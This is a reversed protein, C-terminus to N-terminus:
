VWNWRIERRLAPRDSVGTLGPTALVTALFSDADARDGCWAEFADLAELEPEVAFSTRAHLQSLTGWRDHAFQRTVDVEFAPGEGWDYCGYQFLLMDSGEGRMRGGVAVDRYFGVAGAVFAAIPAADVGGVNAALYRRLADGSTEPRPGPRLRDLWRM